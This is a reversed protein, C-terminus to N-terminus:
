DEVICEPKLRSLRTRQKMEARTFRRRIEAQSQRLAPTSLKHCGWLAWVDGTWPNVAFFGFSGNVPPKNLGDFVFFSDSMRPAPELWREYAAGYAEGILHRAINQDIKRPIESKAHVAGCYMVTVTAVCAALGSSPCRIM